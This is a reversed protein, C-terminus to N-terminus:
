LDPNPEVVGFSCRCLAAARPGGLHWKDDCHMAGSPSHQGQEWRRALSPDPCGTSSHQPSTSLWVSHKQDGHQAQAAPSGRRAFPTPLLSAAPIENTLICIRESRQKWRMCCLPTKTQAQPEAASDHYCFFAYLLPPGGRCFVEFSALSVSSAVALACWPVDQAPSSTSGLWCPSPAGCLAPSSAPALHLGGVETYICTCHPKRPKIACPSCAPSGMTPKSNFTLSFLQM